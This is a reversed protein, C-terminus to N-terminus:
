SRVPKRCLLSFCPRFQPAILTLYYWIHRRSYNGRYIVAEISFGIKQFFDSLETPTYERIHGMAGVKELWSFEDYVGGTVAWAEGKVILNYIGRFSRLNPTSMMFLGGPRLVRLMERASHILDIRLHEVVENAIVVDVSEDDMPIRERDLDCQLPTANAYGDMVSPAGQANDLPSVRFGLRLLPVTLFYPAAGIELISSGAPAWRKAYDLDFALRERHWGLYQAFYPSSPSPPFRDLVSRGSEEVLRLSDVSPLRRESITRM